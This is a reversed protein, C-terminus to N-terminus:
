SKREVHQLRQPIDRPPHLSLFYAPRRQLTRASSAPASSRRATVEVEDGQVAEQAPKSGKTSRRGTSRSGTGAHVSPPWVRPQCPRWRSGPTSRGRPWRAGRWRRSGPTPRGRPVAATRPRPTRGAAGSCAAGGRRTGQPPPWPAPSPSGATPPVEVLRCRPRQHPCRELLVSSWHPPVSVAACRLHSSWRCPVPRQRQRRQLWASATTTSRAVSRQRHCPASGWSAM